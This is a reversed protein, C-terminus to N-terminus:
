DVIKPLNLSTGLSKSSSIFSEIERVLCEEIDGEFHCDTRVVKLSSEYKYNLHKHLQGKTPQYILENDNILGLICLLADNGGVAYICARNIVELTNKGNSGYKQFENMCTAQPRMTEYACAKKGIDDRKIDKAWAGSHFLISFFLIFRM